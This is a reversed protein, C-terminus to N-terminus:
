RDRKDRGIRDQLFLFDVIRKMFCLWGSVSRGTEPRFCYRIVLCAFNWRSKLFQNPEVKQTGNYVWSTVSYTVNLGNIYSTLCVSCVSCLLVKAQSLMAWCVHSQGAACCFLGLLALPALNSWKVGGWSKGRGTLLKGWGRGASGSQKNQLATWTLSQCEVSHLWTGAMTPLLSLTSDRGSCYSVCWVM